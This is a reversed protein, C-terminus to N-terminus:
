LGLWGFDSIPKGAFGALHQETQAETWSPDTKCIADFQSKTSDQSTTEALTGDQSASSAAQTDTDASRYNCVSNGGFLIAIM